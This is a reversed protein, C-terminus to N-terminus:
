GHLPPCGLERRLGAVGAEGLPLQPDAAHSLCSPHNPWRAAGGFGCAPSSSALTHSILTKAPGVSVVAHTHTHACAHARM